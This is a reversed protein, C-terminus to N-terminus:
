RFHFPAVYRTQFADHLARKSVKAAEILLAEMRNMAANGAVRLLFLIQGATDCVQPSFDFSKQEQAHKEEDEWDQARFRGMERSM